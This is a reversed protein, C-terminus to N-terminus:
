APAAPRSILSWSTLPPRAHRLSFRGKADLEELATRYRALLQADDM